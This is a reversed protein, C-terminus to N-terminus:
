RALSAIEESIVGRAVSLMKRRVVNNDLKAGWVTTHTYEGGEPYVIRYSNGCDVLTCHLIDNHEIEVATGVKRATVGAAKCIADATEPTM